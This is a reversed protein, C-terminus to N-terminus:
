VLKLVDRLIFTYDFWGYLMRIAVVAVTFLGSITLFVYDEHGFQIKKRFTRKKPNYTFARAEVTRAV